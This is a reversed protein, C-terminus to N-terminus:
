GREAADAQRLGGASVGGAAHERVLQQRRRELRQAVFQVHGRLEYVDPMYSNGLTLERGLRADLQDLNRIEADIEPVSMSDLRLEASHVIKYWRVVKRRMYWRYAMPSRALMPLVLLLIPVVFLLYRDIMAALWFPFANDLFSNGRKIQDIYAITEASVPLDTNNVNPFEFRGEFKGGREHTQVAAVILLRLLDPHIDNRVVLNTTTALLTKPEAPIVKVVDAGGAPLVVQTLSPNLFSYADVHDLSMLELAPNKILEWPLPAADSLVFLAADLAGATLQQAAEAEPLSLFTSNQATVGSEALLKEALAHTGSGVPGIAIRKGQLQSLRTAPEGLRADKRYFIWLPEYFVNAVTSLIRSDGKAAIGGQVFGVKAAGATLLDLTESAGATTRIELDFGKDAAVKQYAQAALYYGGGVEGTLITFKHPPLSTAVQTVALLLTVLGLVTLIKILNRDFFNM